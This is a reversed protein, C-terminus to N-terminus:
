KNSMIERERDGKTKKKGNKKKENEKECVKGNREKKRRDKM